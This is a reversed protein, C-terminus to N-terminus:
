RAGARARWGPSRAKLAAEVGRMLHAMSEPWRRAARAWKKGERACM